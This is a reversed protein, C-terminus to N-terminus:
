AITPAASRQRATWVRNQMNDLNGSLICRLNHEIIPLLQEPYCDSFGGMHPTIILNRVEWLPNNAPLPEAEFVDMAAGAIASCRLADFVATEDIVGGRALNILYGDSKIASVANADIMHHTAVSYPTLVVIYDSEAFAEAMQSRAYVRDFGDVERNNETVGLIRMGLPRCRAALGDAIVGLGVICVTRKWLLRQPWRTWIKSAQNRIMTPFDRSLALMLMLAMEAMQPGHIGRASSLVVEPRLSPLRDFTDVGTTLAQIWRLNPAVAIMDDTIYPALALLVDADPLEKLADDYEPAAVVDVGEIDNLLRQYTYAETDYVVIKL